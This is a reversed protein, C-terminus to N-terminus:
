SALRPKMEATRFIDRMAQNWERVADERASLERAFASPAGTDIADILAESAVIMGALAERMREAVDNLREVNDLSDPPSVEHANLQSLATDFFDRAAIANQAAVVPGGGAAHVKEANEVYLRMVGQVPRAFAKDIKKAYSRADKARQEAAAAEKKAAEKEEEAAREEDEREDEAAREESEAHELAFASDPPILDLVEGEDENGVSLKVETDTDVEPSGAPPDQEVVVWNADLWISDKEGIVDTDQFEEIGLAELERHAADLRMGVVDPMTVTSGCGTVTFVVTLVLAVGRLSNRGCRRSHRDASSHLMTAERVFEM